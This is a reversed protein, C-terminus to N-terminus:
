AWFELKFVVTLKIELLKGESESLKRWRRSKATSNWIKLWFWSLSLHHTVHYIVKFNRFDTVFVATTRTANRTRNQTKKKRSGDIRHRADCATRWDRWIVTQIHSWILDRFNGELELGAYAGARFSDVFRYSMYWQQTYLSYVGSSPCVTRFMYLKM